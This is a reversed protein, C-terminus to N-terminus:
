GQIVLVGVTSNSVVFNNNLGVIEVGMACNMMMYTLHKVEFCWEGIKFIHPQVEVVDQVIDGFGLTETFNCAILPYVHANLTAHAAEFLCADEGLFKEGFMEGVATVLWALKCGGKPAMYPSGDCKGNSNVIKTDFVPAYLVSLM